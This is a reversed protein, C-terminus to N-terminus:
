AADTNAQIAASVFAALGEAHADFYAAFRADAVYLEALRAHHERSCAYYWRALHLRHREALDRAERSDPRSGAALLAAFAAMLAAAEAHIRAWADADYGKTRRASERYEDTQGWRARAEERHRLSDFETTDDFLDDMSAEEGDSALARDLARLVAEKHLLEEAIRARQATLAERLAGAPGALLSGIAALSLGLERLVVIRHLRRLDADDYSRYGSRGRRSPVLLGISDYHHLTRVTVGTRAAVQRVSYRM